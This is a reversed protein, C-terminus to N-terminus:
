VSDDAATGSQEAAEDIAEAVPNAEEADAGEAADDTVTITDGVSVGDAAGAPFEIILDATAMGVGTWPRLQKVQVVEDGDIWLVDLPARVFLMHIFRLAADDFEFVLAYDDPISSQGMLGVTQSVFSDAVDVDTAIVREDDGDPNVVVRM